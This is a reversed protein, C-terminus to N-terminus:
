KHTDYKLLVTSLLHLATSYRDCSTYKGTLIVNHILHIYSLKGLLNFFILAYKTEM